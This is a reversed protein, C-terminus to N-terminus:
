NYPTTPAPDLTNQKAEEAQAKLILEQGRKWLKRREIVDDMRRYQELLTRAGIRYEEAKTM